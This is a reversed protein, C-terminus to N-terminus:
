DGPRRVAIAKGTGTVRFEWFGHREESPKPRGIAEPQIVQCHFGAAIIAQQLGTNQNTTDTAGFSARDLLLVHSEIGHRELMVLGRILDPSSTPTIIVAASGRRAIEALDDIARVLPNRGNAAMLALARFIAWQQSQGQAPPIVMPNQDYVALGVPRNETNARTALSAALLVANEETGEPGTGIQVDRDCDILLWIDGAADRDFQRVFLEDRRATTKWHIWHFPDMATYDRVGAANITAQWSQAVTRPSGESQGPPLPIALQSIVPPHIIIEETDEYQHSVEFLGFPDGSHISWPGLHFHGRQRCVAAQRWRVLDHASISQVIAANYGPVTSEDKIEVWLAPFASQNMIVFEEQLRDGVAVWSFRLQRSASLGSALSRAWFYALLLLGSLGVLLTTWLRDPTLLALILLLGVLLVPLRLRLRIQTNPNPTFIRSLQNSRYTWWAVMYVNQWLAGLTPM